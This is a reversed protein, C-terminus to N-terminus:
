ISQNRKWIKSQHERVDDISEASGKGDIFVVPYNKMLAYEIYNLLLVTKGGGTTAPVFMHQNVEKFDMHFPKGRQNIGLLLKDLREM